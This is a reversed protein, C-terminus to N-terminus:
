LKRTLSLNKTYLNLFLDNNKVKISMYYFVEKSLTINQASFYSFGHDMSIFENIVYFQCFFNECSKKVSIIHHWLMTESAFMNVYM